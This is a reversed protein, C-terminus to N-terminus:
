KKIRYDDHCATCTAGMKLVAAGITARDAGDALSVRFMATAQELDVAHARFADFEDWIAPLAESPHDFNREEFQAPMQAAHAAIRSAAADALKPDLTDTRLADAILKMDKGIAKMADMRETVVGTAGEHALASTAALLTVCLFFFSRLRVRNRWAFCYSLM